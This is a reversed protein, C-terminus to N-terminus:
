LVQILDKLTKLSFDIEELTNFKSFSFRISSNARKRSYGMELLVRSPELAGSSCASGLSTAIGKQDLLIMLSEGDINPFYVNSTSYLREGEGNIEIQPMIKKLGKEFREQLKKLHDKANVDLLSIAKSLGLIGSLNETGARASREQLGGTIQSSLPFSSRVILAASGKPAHFKHGSISVATMGPHMLFNEKGIWCVADVFLPIKHKLAIQSIKELDIKVGTENNAASFCLAVTNEQIAKEIQDPTPAGLSGTKLFTVDFGNKQLEQATKYTCSHEISSTIIHGKKLSKLFLNANETGSSTFIVEKPDVKFYSAVRERSSLLYSAAKKGFSHVSSPNLPPGSLDLLMEKLVEPDLETTANNDFYIKKMRM